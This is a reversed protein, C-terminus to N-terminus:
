LAHKRGVFYVGSAIRMSRKRKILLHDLQLMPLLLLRAGLTAANGLMGSGLLCVLYENLVWNLASTPGMHSGWELETFGAETCFLRLGEATWRWYDTPDAHYGQIFPVEIHVIGGEALLRGIEALVQGPNRVHELTGTCYVADFSADPLPIRHIDCVLDTTACDFGDVTFTDATIKRGGAGIDCIRAGPALLQLTEQAKNRPQLTLAPLFLHFGSKFAIWAM